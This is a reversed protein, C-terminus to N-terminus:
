LDIGNIFVPKDALSIDERLPKVYLHIATDIRAFGKLSKLLPHAPECICYIYGVGRQFALNNVQQLLVTLHRPNQFGIPTLMMQKLVEGVKPAKPMRLLPGAIGSVYGAMQMKVNLKEVVLRTVQSWDWFGLCAVIEDNEELVFVNQFDYAPTRNIFQALEKGTMPECLEYDRWTKNLLEAVADLDAGIIPRIRGFCKYEMERFVSLGPMVLTRHRRYYQREVHRMSPANGEM